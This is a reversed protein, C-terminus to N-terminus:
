LFPFNVSISVNKQPHCTSIFKSQKEDSEGKKHLYFAKFFGNWNM